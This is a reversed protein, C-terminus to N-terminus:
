RRLFTKQIADTDVQHGLLVSNGCRIVTVGILDPTQLYVFMLLVSSLTVHWGEPHYGLRRLRLSYSTAMRLALVDSPLIAAVSTESRM